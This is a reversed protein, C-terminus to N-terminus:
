FMTRYRKKQLFLVMSSAFYDPRFISKFTTQSSTLEIVAGWAPMRRQQFTVLDGDVGAAARVMRSEIRGDRLMLAM